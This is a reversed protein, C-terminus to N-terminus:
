PTLPGRERQTDRAPNERRFPRREGCAGAPPFVIGCVRVRSFPSPSLRLPPLSTTHSCTHRGGRERAGKQANTRRRRGPKTTGAAPPSNRHWAGRLKAFFPMPLTKLPFCQGSYIQPFTSFPYVPRFTWFPLFPLFPGRPGFIRGFM